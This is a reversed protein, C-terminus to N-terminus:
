FQEFLHDSCLIAVCHGDYGSWDERLPARHRSAHARGIKANEQPLIALFEKVVKMAEIGPLSNKLLCM